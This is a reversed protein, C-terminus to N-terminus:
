IQSLLANLEAEDAAAGALKDMLEHLFIPDPTTLNGRTEGSPAVLGITGISAAAEGLQTWIQRVFVAVSTKGNTGTVAVITAPQRPYFRAAARALAARANSVKVYPINSALDVPQAGEAVLAVAGRGAAEALFRRGDTKSGALAFFVDGPKVRRSDASIGTVRIEASASIGDGLVERIDLSKGM